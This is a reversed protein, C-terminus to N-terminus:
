VYKIAINHIKCNILGVAKYDFVGSPQNKFIFSGKSTNIFVDSTQMLNINLVDEGKIPLDATNNYRDVWIFSAELEEITQAYTIWGYKVQVNSDGIYSNITSDSPSFPARGIAIRPTNEFLTTVDSQLYIYIYQRGDVYFIDKRLVAAGATTYGVDLNGNKDFVVRNNQTLRFSYVAIRYNSPLDTVDFLIRMYKSPVSDPAVTGGINSYPMSAVTTSSASIRNIYTTGTIERITALQNIQMGSPAITTNFSNGAGAGSTASIKSSRANEISLGWERNYYLNDILPTNVDVSSVVLDRTTYAVSNRSFPLSIISGSSDYGLINGVNWAGMPYLEDSDRWEIPINAYCEKLADINYSNGSSQINTLFTQFATDESRLVNLNYDVIRNNTSM